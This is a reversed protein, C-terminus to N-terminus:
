SVEVPVSGSLAQDLRGSPVVSAAAPDASALAQAADVLDDATVDLYRQLDADFYGPTGRYVNYANLQDARGGFGGLTQLRYVFSAEARRRGRDLEDDTPGGAALRDIEERVIAHVEDLTRGPAATAIVQFVGGLERSGQQAAVDAVVRDELVLRRYLRSARGNALIDAFLDLAADGPAFLAPSPWALYLRPLEVRDAIVVRAGGGAPM